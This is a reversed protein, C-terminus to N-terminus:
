TVSDNNASFGSNEPVITKSHKLTTLFERKGKRQNENSNDELLSALDAM